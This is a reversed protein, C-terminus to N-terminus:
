GERGFRAARHAREEDREVSAFGCLGAFGLLLGGVLFIAYIEPEVVFNFLAGASFPGLMAIGLCTLKFLSQLM